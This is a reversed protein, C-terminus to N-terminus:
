PQAPLPPNKGASKDALWLKWPATNYPWKELEICWKPPEPPLFFAKRQVPTLCRPVAAKAASVFAQTHPFVEWIRATKDASSTVIHKGDPSFAASLVWGEHGILPEGIPKGSEADWIRATKDWSATVIRKGDPSFAASNVVDEHGTLPEGIPKGNAADWIRATKDESATVIRTGDPSFTASSVAGDHGKLSEGIAKGTTADV